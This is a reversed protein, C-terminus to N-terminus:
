DYIKLSVALVPGFRIVADGDILVAQGKPVEEGNVYTGNRSGVDRVWVGEGYVLLEAHRRSVYTYPSLDRALPSFTYDRGIALHETLETRQGWPWELVARIRPLEASPAPALSASFESMVVVSSPQPEFSAGPARGEAHAKATVAEVLRGLEGSSFLETPGSEPRDTGNETRPMLSPERLEGCRVAYGRERLQQEVGSLASGMGPGRAWTCHNLENLIALDNASSDGAFGV